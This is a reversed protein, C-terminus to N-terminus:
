TAAGDIDDALAVRSKELRGHEEIVEALELQIAPKSTKLRALVRSAFLTEVAKRAQGTSLRGAFGEVDV